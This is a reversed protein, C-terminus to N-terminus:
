EDAAVEAAMAEDASQSDDQPPPQEVSLGGPEEGDLHDLDHESLAEEADHFSGYLAELQDAWWTCAAGYAEKAEESEGVLAIFDPESAIDKEDVHEAAHLRLCWTVNLVAPFGTDCDTALKGTPAELLAKWKQDLKAPTSGEAVPESDQAKFIFLRHEDDRTKKSISEQPMGLAVAAMSTLSDDDRTGDKWRLMLMASPDWLDSHAPDLEKLMEEHEWLADDQVPHMIIDWLAVSGCVITTAWAIRRLMQRQPGPQLKDSDSRVVMVPEVLDVVLERWDRFFVAVFLGALLASLAWLHWTNLHPFCVVLSIAAIADVAICTFVEGSEPPLAADGLKPPSRGSAAVAALFAVASVLYILNQWMYAHGPSDALALIVCLQPGLAAAEQAAAQAALSVSGPKPMDEFKKDAAPQLRGSAVVAHPMAFGMSVFVLCLECATISGAMMAMALCLLVISIFLGVCSLTHAIGLLDQLMKSRILRTLPNGDVDRGEMPLGGADDDVIRIAATTFGAVWWTGMSVISLTETWSVFFPLHEVYGEHYGDYRM